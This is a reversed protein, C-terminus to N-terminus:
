CHRCRTSTFLSGATRRFGANTRAPAVAEAASTTIRSSAATLSPATQFSAAEVALAVLLTGSSCRAWGSWGEAEAAAPAKGGEVGRRESRSREHSAAAREASKVLSGSSVTIENM